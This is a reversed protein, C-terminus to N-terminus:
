PMLECFTHGIYVTVAVGQAVQGTEEIEGAVHPEPEDGAGAGVDHGFRDVLADGGPHKRIVRLHSKDVLVLLCLIDDAVQVRIKEGADFRPVLGDKGHQCRALDCFAAADDHDLEVVFDPHGVPDAVDEVGVRVGEVAEGGIQM